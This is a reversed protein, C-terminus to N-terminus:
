KKRRKLYACGAFALGILSWIAISAPEPVETALAATGSIGEVRLGTYGVAANNLTFELTNIGDIFPSGVPIAFDVLGGFGNNGSDVVDGNLLIDGGANDTAWAGTIEATTPDLGTLDFELQYTYDGAASGATNFEPAIWKSTASNNIWPGAIPFASEDEVHAAPGTANPNTTIQYHPDLAAANNPLPAGSGDVGTNYLGPIASFDASNGLSVLENTYGYLHWSNNVNAQSLTTSLKSTEATYQLTLAYAQNSAGFGPPNVSSNDQSIQLPPLLNTNQGNSFTFNAIRNNSAGWGRTYIRQEYEAGRLLGGASLTANGGAANNGNYVMDQFLNVVNGSVNHNGNGGHFNVSGSNASYSFNPALAGLSGGNNVQTFAVGNVNAGANTGFDLAHTYTKAASIGSDADNTIPVYTITQALAPSALLFFLLFNALWRM